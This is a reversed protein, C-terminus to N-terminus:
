SLTAAPAPAPAPTLAPNTRDTTTDAPTSATTTSDRGNHKGTYLASDARGLVATADEGPAWQAIGITCTQGHPVTARIRDAVTVADAANCGPLALVFEEGGWRALTDVERLHGAAATAFGRLLEDGALHGFTDNFRKFHDLDVLAFTLVADTRAARAIEARAIEDWRRRNTLGTLVDHQAADALQTLLDAREITHAAEAALTQLMSAVTAPLQEVRHRWIVGLVGLPSGDRRLVPQWVGSVTGSKAIMDPNADPHAGVDAVFFAQRDRFANLPLSVDSALDLRLETGQAFGTMATSVLHGQGDPQLLYAAEAGTLECMAACIAAHPDDATTVARAADALTQVQRAHLALQQSRQALEKERARDTTVDHLAIVAGLVTDDGAHMLRGSCVVTRAPHDGTLIVLEVGEVQGERLIRRLPLEKPPLPTTADATYLGYTAAHETLPLGIQPLHGLWNTATDNFMTLGGQPDTVIIAVQVSALVADSLEGRRQSEAMALEVLMRQEEAFTQQQEAFKQQQEARAAHARVQTLLVEREDRGLALALGVVVLMGVFLQVVLARADDNSITAFPGSGALTFAVAVVGLALDHVAVITTDFRLAVWVTVALLPFALPLGDFVAFVLVYLLGSVMLAAILEVLRLGRPRIFPLRQQDPEEPSDQGRPHRTQPTPIKTRPDLLHGIRLGAALILVVSVTNRILWVAASLLSWHGTLAWVSVPGIVAGAASALLAAALLFGLQRGGALPRHGGAGWLQPCWRAFLWSFTAVQVLNALIFCGALGPSTGTMTNTIFTIVSLLAADLWYTRAGRQTAFWLAAVGAAPWVLSLSTGDMVTLRGLAVTLAFLVAFGASRALAARGM